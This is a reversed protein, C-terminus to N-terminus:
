YKTEDGSGGYWVWEYFESPAHDFPCPASSPSPVLSSKVVTWIIYVISHPRNIYVTWNPIANKFKSDILTRYHRQADDNGKSQFLILKLISLGSFWGRFMEATLASDSDHRFVKREHRCSAVPVWGHHRHCGLRRGLWELFGAIMFCHNSSATTREAKRNPQCHHCCSMSYLSTRGILHVTNDITLDQNDGDM